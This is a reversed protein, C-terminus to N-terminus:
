AAPSVDIQSARFKIYRAKTKAEDGDTEAYLRAWLGKDIKGSEVEESAAAFSQNDTMRASHELTTTAM